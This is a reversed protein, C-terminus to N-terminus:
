PIPRAVGLDPRLMPHDCGLREREKETPLDTALWRAPWLPTAKWRDKMLAFVTDWAGCALTTATKKELDVHRFVVYEARPLLTRTEETHVVFTLEEGSAPNKARM